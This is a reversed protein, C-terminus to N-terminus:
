LEGRTEIDGVAVIHGHVYLNGFIHMGGKLNFAADGFVPASMDTINLSAQDPQASTDIHVKSLLTAEDFVTMTGDIEIAGKIKLLDSDPKIVSSM